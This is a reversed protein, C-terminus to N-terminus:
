TDRASETRLIRDHLLGTPDRITLTSRSDIIVRDLGVVVLLGVGALGEVAGVGSIVGALIIVVRILEEM